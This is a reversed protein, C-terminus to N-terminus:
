NYSGINVILPMDQPLKNIIDNVLRCNSGNLHILRANPALMGITLPKLLGCRLQLDMWLKKRAWQSKAVSIIKHGVQNKKILKSKTQIWNMVFAVIAIVVCILSIISLHVITLPLM